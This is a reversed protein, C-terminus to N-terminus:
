GVDPNHIAKALLTWFQNDFAERGLEPLGTDGGQRIVIIDLDPIVEIRQDFRGRALWASLPMAPYIPGVVANESDINDDLYDNQGNLWWLYGYAKQMPQSTRLMEDFYGNSSVLSKSPWEGRNLIMLGFRAMDRATMSLATGEWSYGNIDAPTFLLEEFVEGAKRGSAAEIVDFLKIFANHNYYWKTGVPESYRLDDDLGSTMSLLDRIKIAREKAVPANSWHDGLHESVTQSISLKSQEQLIGIVVSVMSKSVSEIHNQTEANSNQWYKEVVIRGKHLILLSYSNKEGAYDVAQQLYTKNWGAKEVNITEWGSNVAGPFYQSASDVPVPPVVAMKPEEEECGSFFFATILLVSLFHKM